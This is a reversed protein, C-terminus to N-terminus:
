RDSISMRLRRVEALRKVMTKSALLGANACDRPEVAPLREELLATRDVAGAVRGDVVLVDGVAVVGKGLEGAVRVAPVIAVLGVVVVVVAGIRGL